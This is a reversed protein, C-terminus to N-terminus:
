GSRRVRRFDSDGRTHLKVRNVLSPQFQNILEVISAYVLENDVRITTFEKSLQDRLIRQVLNLERHIITPAAKKEAQSKIDTWLARLFKIDSKLEGEGKHEGATRVIFGGPLDRRNDLIIRKLRQREENSGIKRSVGIHEVTPM